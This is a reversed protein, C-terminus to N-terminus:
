DGMPTSIDISVDVVFPETARNTRVHFQVRSNPVWHAKSERFVSYTLPRALGSDPASRTSDRNFVPGEVRLGESTVVQEVEVRAGSLSVLTIQRPDRDSNESSSFYIQPPLAMVPPRIRAFAALGGQPVKKGDSRTGHLKVVWEHPGIELSENPKIGLKFSWPSEKTVTVSGFSEDCQAVLSELGDLCEVTIEKSEFPEGAILSDGFDLHSSSFKYPQIISGKLQWEVPLRRSEIAASITVAFDRQRQEMESQKSPTLDLSLAVDRREGPELAFSTPEVSTCGCSATLSSVVVPKDSVNTIPLTWPFKEEYGAEGFDLAGAPVTLIEVPTQGVSHRAGNHWGLGISDAPLAIFLALWVAKRSRLFGFRRM